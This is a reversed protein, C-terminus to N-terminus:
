NDSLAKLYNKALIDSGQKGIHVGDYLHSLSINDNNIFTFNEECCMEEVVDNLEYCRQQLGPRATVGAIYVDKVGYKKCVQGAEIIHEALNETTTFSSNAGHSLDNGGMHLIVSDPAEVALHSKIYLLKQHSDGEKWSVQPNPGYREELLQEIRECQNGEHHVHFLHGGQGNKETLEKLQVEEETKKTLDKGIQKEVTNLAEEEENQAEEEKIQAEEQQPPKVTERTVEENMKNKYM